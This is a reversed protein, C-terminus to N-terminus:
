RISYSRNVKFAIQDGMDCIIKIYKKSELEEFIATLWDKKFPSFENNEISIVSYISYNGKKGSEERYIPSKELNLMLTENLGKGNALNNIDKIVEDIAEKMTVKTPFAHQIEREIHQKAKECVAERNLNTLTHSILNSDLERSATFNYKIRIFIKAILALAPIVLTCYSCVILATNWASVRRYLLHTEQNNEELFICGTLGSTPAFYNEICEIIKQTTSKKQLEQSADFNLFEVPTWFNLKFQSNVASSGIISM